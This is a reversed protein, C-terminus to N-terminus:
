PAAEASAPCDDPQELRYFVKRPSDTITFVWRQPHGEDGALLTIVALADTPAGGALAKKWLQAISCAPKTIVAQEDGYGSDRKKVIGNADWTLYGAYVTQNWLIPGGLPRESERGRKDTPYIRRVFLEGLKPDLHGNSRAYKATVDGITEIAVLKAIIEDPTAGSMSYPDSTPASPSNSGQQQIPESQKKCGGAVLVVVVLM